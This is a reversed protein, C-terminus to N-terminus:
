INYFTIVQWPYLIYINRDDNEQLLEILMSCGVRGNFAKGKLRTNNIRQFKTDYVAFDGLEIYSRADSELEAGIDICCRDLAAGKSREEKTQLHIAKAGIVGQLKKEGVLVGKSVMDRNEDGLAAIRLTGDKNFGTVIFGAEDMHTSIIVKKKTGTKNVIVNGMKDFKLSDIKGSLENLIFNRVEGEFGSPASIESLRDLFM